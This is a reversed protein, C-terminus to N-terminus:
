VGLSEGDRMLYETWVSVRVPGTAFMLRVSMPATSTTEFVVQEVHDGIFEVATLESPSADPSLLMVYSTGVNVAYMRLQLRRRMGDASVLPRWLTEIPDLVHTTGRALRRYLLNPTDEVVVPIPKPPVLDRPTIDQRVAQNFAAQELDYRLGESEREFQVGHQESGRYAIYGRQNHTPPPGGHGDVLSTNDLAVPDDSYLQDNVTDQYPNRDSM